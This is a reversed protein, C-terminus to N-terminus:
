PASPQVQARATFVFGRGYVTELPLPEDGLQEIKKRLRRVMIEMRRADYYDPKHGLCTVLLQREIPTGPASMLPGLFRIESQTLKVALGRPTLLSWQTADLRWCSPLTRRVRRTLNIVQLALEELDVPKVFYADAGCRIGSIRHAKAVRASTIILGTEELDERQRLWDLGDGDPLGLDLLIVDFHASQLCEHAEHLCGAAVATMGDLQLFSVLADRLDAEDEVVLVRPAIDMLSKM